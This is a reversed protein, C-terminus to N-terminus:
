HEESGAAVCRFTIKIRSKNIEDQCKVNNLIKLPFCHSNVDIIRVSNINRSLPVYFIAIFIRESIKVRLSHLSSFGVWKGKHQKEREDYCKYNAYNIAGSLSLCALHLDM